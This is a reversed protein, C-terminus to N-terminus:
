LAKTSALKTLAIDVRQLVARWDENTARRFLRMSHYWPSDERDLLWRWDPPTNVLLWTPKGLAGALHAVATDVTIVLDLNSIVAATDAFDELEDALNIAHLPADAAELQTAPKGKQLSYFQVNPIKALPSFDQLTVTRHRHGVYFTGSAWVIGINFKTHDIRSRWQAILEAPATLYGMPSPITEVTTGMLYPLSMLLTYTDITAAPTRQYDRIEVSAMNPLQQMLRQLEPPCHLIVKSNAALLPLYRCCQLIDGFGQEAYVLITRGNLPAGDWRPQPLEWRGMQSQWRWFRTRWEYETWGEEYRGLLLLLLSRGWHATVDDPFRRVAEDYYELAAGYHGQTSELSAKGQLVTSELSPDLALAQELAAKAKAYENREIYLENLFLYSQASNPALSLALQYQNEAEDLQGCLRLAEGYNILCEVHKPQLQLANRYLPLAAEPKGSRKLINALQLHGESDGPKLRSYARWCPEAEYLRGQRLLLQGLNFQAQTLHPDIAIAKRFATEAAALDGLMGNVAGYNLWIDANGPYIACIQEFAVKAEALRQQQLLTEAKRKAAALNLTQKKM